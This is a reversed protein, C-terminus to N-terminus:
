LLGGPAGCDSESGSRSPRVAAPRPPRDCAAPCSPGASRSSQRGYSRSSHRRAARLHGGIPRLAERLSSRLLSPNYNKNSTIERARVHRHAKQLQRNRGRRHPASPCPGQRACPRRARGRASPRARPAPRARASSWPRRARQPTDDRVHSDEKCALQSGEALANFLHCWSMTKSLTRFRGDFSNIRWRRAIMTTRRACSKLFTQALSVVRSM